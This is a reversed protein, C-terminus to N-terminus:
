SGGRWDLVTLANIPTLTGGGEPNTLYWFGTLSIAITSGNPSWVPADFSPSCCDSRYLLTRHSGDVDIVWYEAVYNNSRGPTKVYAIRTGDPSWVPLGPGEFKTGEVLVRLESGDANVVYIRSFDNGGADLVLKDGNPSWAISAVGLSSTLATHNSGDAANMVYVEGAALYAIKTGDPSWTPSDFGGDSPALLTRHSGDADITEIPGATHGAERGSVFVLKTGDPSWAFAGPYCTEISPCESVLQRPEGTAGRVWLGTKPNADNSNCALHIPCTHVTYAVWRGDPSWAADFIYGYGCPQSCSALARRVGSKPDVGFVTNDSVELVEGDHRLISSPQLPTPRPRDPRQVSRTLSLGALLAAVAIALGVVGAVIRQNRRKRDRRRVLRDFSPEPPSWRRVARDFLDREDIM